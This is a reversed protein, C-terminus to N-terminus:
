ITRQGYRSEDNSLTGFDPSVASADTPIVLPNDASSDDDLQAVRLRGGDQDIRTDVFTEAGIPAKLRLCGIQLM